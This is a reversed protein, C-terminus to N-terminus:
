TGPLEVSVGPFGTPPPGDTPEEARFEVTKRTGPNSTFALWIEIM